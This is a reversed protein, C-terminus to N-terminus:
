EKNEGEVGCDLRDETRKEFWMLAQEMNTIAISNERCPYKKNLGKTRHILIALLAENTLGNVGGESVPGYQFNIDSIPMGTDEDDLFVQYEHLPFVEQVVVNNHDRYISM